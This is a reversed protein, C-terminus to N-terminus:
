FNYKEENQYIVDLYVVTVKIGIIARDLAIIIWNLDYLIKIMLQANVKSKNFEALLLISSDCTLRIPPISIPPEIPSKLSKSLIIIVQWYTLDVVTYREVTFTFFYVQLLICSHSDSHIPWGFPRRSNQTSLMNVFNKMSLITCNLNWLIIKFINQSNDLVQVQSNFAKYWKRKLGLGYLIHILPWAHSDWENPRSPIGPKIVVIRRSNNILVKSKCDKFLGFTFFCKPRTRIEWLLVFFSVFPM